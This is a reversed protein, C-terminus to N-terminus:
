IRNRLGEPLQGYIRGQNRAAAEHAHGGTATVWYLLHRESCFVYHSHRGYQAIKSGCRGVHEHVRVQYPTRARRDCEDWGCVMPMMTDLNIILREVRAPASHQMGIPM